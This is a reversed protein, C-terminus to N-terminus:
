ADIKTALGDVQRRMKALIKRDKTAMAFAICVEGVRRRLDAAKRMGDHAGPLPNKLNEAGVSGARACLSLLNFYEWIAESRLPQLHVSQGYLLLQELVAVSDVIRQRQYSAFSSTLEDVAVLLRSAFVHASAISQSAERARDRQWLWVTTLMAGFVAAFQAWAAWDSSSLGSMFCLDHM